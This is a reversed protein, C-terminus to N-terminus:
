ARRRLRWLGFALAGALLLAVTSPEPVSAVRFGYYPGDGTPPIGNWYYSALVDSDGNFSGGRYVRDPYRPDTPYSPVPTDLLDEVDGGQDFTGYASPSLVFDGVPTLLNTPDTYGNNGTHYTDYFNAHNGTDPLTNIPATNSRTPYAWYGGGGGNLAPDYYAAKYWENQTPIVYTATSTRAVTMLASDSTAGNMAYSGTETTGTGEAGTPQGNQLWNCFRAGDAWSVWNVPFSPNKTTSYTYNGSSGSRSIGCAAYGSAMSSNYLGYPDATKAVADLFATYQAVTVDYEGMKYVYGVSGLTGGTAPDAANGPNGVSVFQMSTQGAPMNFVDAQAALAFVALAAGLVGRLIMM